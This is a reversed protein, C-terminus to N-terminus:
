KKGKGKKKDTQKSTKYELKKDGGISAPAPKGISGMDGFRKNFKSV